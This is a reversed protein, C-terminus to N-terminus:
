FLCLLIITRINYSCVIGINGPLNPCLMNMSEGIQKCSLMEVLDVNTNIHSLPNSYYVTHAVDVFSPNNPTSQMPVSTM